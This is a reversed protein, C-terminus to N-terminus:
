RKEKTKTNPKHKLLGSTGVSGVGVGVVLDIRRAHLLLKRQTERRVM